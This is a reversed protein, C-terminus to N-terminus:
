QINGCWGKRMSRAASPGAAAADSARADESSINPAVAPPSHMGWNMGAGGRRSVERPLAARPPFLNSKELTPTTAAAAAETDAEELEADAEAMAETELEVAAGAEEDEETEEDDEDEGDQEGREDALDANSAVTGDDEEMVLDREAEEESFRM